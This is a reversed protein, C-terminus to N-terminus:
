LLHSVTDLQSCFYWLLHPVTDTATLLFVGALTTCDGTTLLSVVVLTACHRTTLLFVGALTTCEGTTLLSVVALTAWHRQSHASIGSCTHRLTHNHASVSYLLHPAADRITILFAVALTAYHCLSHASICCCAHRLM